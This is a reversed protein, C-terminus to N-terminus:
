SPPEEGDHRSVLTRNSFTPATFDHQVRLRGTLSETKLFPVRPPRGGTPDPAYELHSYM